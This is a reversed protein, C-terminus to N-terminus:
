ARWDACPASAPMPCTSATSSRTSAPSTPPTCTRLCRAVAKPMPAAYRLRFPAAAHELRTAALRAIPMTLDSRVMLLRGDGDFLQFPADEVRAARELSRRDELLPTEVPLYGHRAFVESVTQVIRERRLAEEPMIDRFGRPCVPKM